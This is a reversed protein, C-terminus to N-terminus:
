KKNEEQEKEKTAPHIAKDLREVAQNLEVKLMPLRTELVALEAALEWAETKAEHAARPLKRDKLIVAFEDTLAALRTFISM